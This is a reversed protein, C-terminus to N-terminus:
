KCPEGTRTSLVILPNRGSQTLTHPTGRPIFLYVGAKLRQQQGAFQATGEGAIVYFVEDANEHAHEALPQNLQILTSEVDGSCSLPNVRSPARGVFQNDIVNLIDVSAPKGNYVPKAPAPPLEPPAPPPPVPTLTVKVDVVQGARATFEKEFPVFGERDFRLRYTGAPVGELAIRGGETRTSRTAAGEVKVTVNPVANGEPDTVNIALTVNGGRAPTRPPTKARQPTAPPTAPPTAQAYADVGTLGLVFVCALSLRTMFRAKM